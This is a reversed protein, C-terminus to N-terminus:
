VNRAAERQKLSLTDQVVDLNERKEGIVKYLSDTNDKLAAAKKRLLAAADSASKGVFFSTGIDVLLQAGPELTGPVYLSRPRPSRHRPSPACARTNFRQPLRARPPRASSACRSTLPM